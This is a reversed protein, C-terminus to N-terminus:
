LQGQAPMTLADLKMIRVWDNMSTALAVDSWVVTPVALAGQGWGPMHAKSAQICLGRNVGGRM